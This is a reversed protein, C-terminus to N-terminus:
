EPITDYLRDAAKLVDYPPYWGIRDATELNITIKAPANWIMPISGPEKGHFVMTATKAHFDAAYSFDAQSISMLIGAEVENEGRQSFSPIKADTLMKVIQPISKESVGVHVTVYVADSSDVLERYCELANQEAEAQTVDSFPADCIEMEFGVEDALEKIERYASYTRGEQSDEMIFGLRSFGTLGYFIQLQKKYRDPEIKAHMHQFGSDEASIVIGAGVPDSSSAVETPVNMQADAMDQGAWTGMAFIFDIDNKDRIRDKLSQRVESRKENDFGESYFGDQIFELYDSKLNSCIWMWFRQHDQMYEDPMETNEIWGRKM